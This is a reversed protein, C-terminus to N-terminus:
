KKPDELKQIVRKFGKFSSGMTSFFTFDYYSKM